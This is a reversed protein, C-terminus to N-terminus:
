LMKNGLLLGLNETGLHRELHLWAELIRHELLLWAQLLGNELLWDKIGNILRVLLLRLELLLIRLLEILCLILPVIQWGCVRLRLVGICLIILLLLVVVSELVLWCRIVIVVRVVIM